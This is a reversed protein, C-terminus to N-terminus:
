LSIGVHELEQVNRHRKEWRSHLSRYAAPVGDVCAWVVDAVCAWVVDALNKAKLAAHLIKLNSRAFGGDGGNKCRRSGEICKCRANAEARAQEQTGVGHRVRSEPAAARCLYAVEEVHLLFISGTASL